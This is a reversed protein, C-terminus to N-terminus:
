SELKFRVNEVSEKTGVLTVIDGLRLRTYGHSIIISGKRQVSLVIVDTPFRLDRLTMGHIDKNRIEVDISDQATDLGLLISTANPSRVFHDLLNIMAMSPDIVRVGLENFKELFSRTGNYRVIIDKTGIHEYVLESIKHNEEDSVLCVIVDANELHIDKFSNLSIDNISVVEFDNNNIQVENSISVIKPTWGHQKLSQALAISQSELGFIVADRVGDYEPTKHKLHSEGVYNIAMKFLPPGILQNIIIIAIIITQFEYGWSPFEAAVLTTLGLAVGAQTVYPMWSIFIYKKNDNAAVAGFIGGLVLTFIRLGFLAIAIWFVQVLTQLSLSAGTLTFFIIYITPSIDNLLEVFEIRNKSYNTIFFSGIICILLPELVVEHNFIIETNVKIFSSFLYVGYGLLIIVVGKIHRNIKLTLPIQLIKGLLLGLGFSLVLEILLILLFSFGSEEGNIVAKAVSLCIAFLIIVLVDILVTVGLTTKTFPGNARLENILAIASSPSRAVFIVGFLAAIIIKVGSSLEAMFPIYSTMYYIVVSSLVFTIVLQGITMWKISNLRSRLEKLYLESGASFAIIALAIDNLFNLKPISDSQIFNLVSSGAIIGTIILGTILPFKIKQFVKAIEHGAIAVLAFGLLVIIFQVDM